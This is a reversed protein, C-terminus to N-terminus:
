RFVRLTVCFIDSICSQQRSLCWCRHNKRVICVGLAFDTRELGKWHGALLGIRVCGYIEAVVM